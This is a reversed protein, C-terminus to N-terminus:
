SFSFFFLFSVLAVLLTFFVSGCACKLFTILKQSAFLLISEWSRGVHWRTGERQSWDERIKKMSMRIKRGPRAEEKRAMTGKRMSKKREAREKRRDGRM